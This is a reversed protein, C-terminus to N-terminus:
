TGSPIIDKFPLQGRPRVWDAQGYPGNSAVAATEAVYRWADAADAEDHPQLIAMAAASLAPWANYAGTYGHDSRRAAADADADEPSLAVMWHPRRLQTDFFRLM